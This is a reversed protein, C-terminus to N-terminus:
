VIFTKHALLKKTSQRTLTKLIIRFNKMEDDTSQIGHNSIEERIKNIHSRAFSSYLAIKMLGGTKLCEFLTQWGKIPNDM